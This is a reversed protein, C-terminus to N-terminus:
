WHPPRERTIRDDDSTGGPAPEDRVPKEPSVDTDPAPTLRARRRGTREVRQRAPGADAADSAGPEGAADAGGSAGPEGSADAARSASVDSVDTAGPVDPESSGSAGDAPAATM